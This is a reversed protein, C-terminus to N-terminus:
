QRKTDNPRQLIPELGEAIRLKDLLQIVAASFDMDPEAKCLQDLLEQQAPNAIKATFNTIAPLNSKQLLGNTATIFGQAWSFYLAKATEGRQKVDSLYSSCKGSGFGYSPAAAQSQAVAPVSWLAILLFGIRVMAAEKRGTVGQVIALQFNL